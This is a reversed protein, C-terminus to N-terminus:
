RIRDDNLTMPSYESAPGVGILNSHMDNTHLITFTRIKKREAAPEQGSVTRTLSDDQPDTPSMTMGKVKRPSRGRSLPKGRRGARSRIRRM